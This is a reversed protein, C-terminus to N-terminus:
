GNAEPPAGVPPKKARLLWGVLFVIAVIFLIFVTLCSGGILMLTRELPNVSDVHEASLTAGDIHARFTMDLGNHARIPESQLGGAPANRLWAERDEKPLPPPATGRPLAVLFVSTVNGGLGQLPTMMGSELKLWQAAKAPDGTSRAYKLYFDYAPYQDLNEFCIGFHNFLAGPGADPRASAPFIFLAILPLICRLNM